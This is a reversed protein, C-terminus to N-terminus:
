GCQSGLVETNLHVRKSDGSKPFRSKRVRGMTTLKAIMSGNCVPLNGCNVWRSMLAAIRPVHGDKACNDHRIVEAHKIKQAIETERLGHVIFITDLAKLDIKAPVLVGRCCAM